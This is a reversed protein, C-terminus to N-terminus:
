ETVDSDANLDDYFEESVIEDSEIEPDDWETEIEEAVAIEADEEKLSVDSTMLIPRSSIVLAESDSALLDLTEEGNSIWSGFALLLDRWRDNWWSRCFSRRLSHMKAKSELPLRGDLTFIVHSRAILRSPNGLSPKM